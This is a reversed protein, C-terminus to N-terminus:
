CATVRLPLTHNTDPVIGRTQGESLWVTKPFVIRLDSIFDRSYRRSNTYDNAFHVLEAQNRTDILSLSSATAM